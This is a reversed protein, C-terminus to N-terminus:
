WLYATKKVHRLISTYDVVSVTGNGDVDACIFQYDDLTSTKKIFRLVTTYDLINIKGDGNVDGIPCINFNYEGTKIEIDKYERTIHNNKSIKVTYVGSLISEVNYTANNEGITFTYSAETEGYKIFEVTTKDTESLYSKVSFSISIDTPKSPLCTKYGIGKETAYNRLYENDTTSCIYFDYEDGGAFNYTDIYKVSEPIHVFKITGGCEVTEAPLHTIGEPLILSEGTTYGSFAYVGLSIHHGDTESFSINNLNKCYEFSGGIYEIKSPFTISKLSQCEAFACTGMFRLNDSLTISELNECDYFAWAGISVVSDPLTISTIYPHSDIYESGMITLTGEKVKFNGTANESIAILHNDIYLSDGSWNEKNAIAYYFNQPAIYIVSDPITYASADKLYGIAGSAITTTGEKVTCSKLNAENAYALHTGIYLMNGEWNKDNNWYATNRFTDSAFSTHEPITIDSLSICDYFAYFDIYYVSEPIIIKELSSCGRFASNQIESVGYPITINKLSSCGYFTRTFITSISEPLNVTKLNKCNYFAYAEITTVSDPITVTELYQCNAFVEYGIVTTTDPVTYNTTKKGAPYYILTSGDFLVGNEDSHYKTNDPDVTIKELSTCGDFAIADGSTLWIYRTVSAPIYVSKLSTCNKFIGPGIATVGESITVSTILSCNSFAYDMFGTVPYGGLTSPTVIDGSISPNCDIITAQNNNNVYYTYYGSTYEDAHVGVSLNGLSSLMLLVAMVSAITKRFSKEM